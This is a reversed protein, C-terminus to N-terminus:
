TRLSSILDCYPFSNGSKFRLTIISIEADSKDSNGLLSEIM